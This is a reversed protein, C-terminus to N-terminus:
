SPPLELRPWWALMFFIGVAYFIGCVSWPMGLLKLTVGFLVVCECFVLSLIVGGRWLSIAAKDEPNNQLLESAPQIRRARFFMALGLVCLSLIGLALPFVPPFAPKLAPAYALPVIIYAVATGVFALHIIRVAQLTKQATGM